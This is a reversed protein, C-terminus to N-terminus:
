LKARQAYFDLINHMSTQDIIFRRFDWIWFYGMMLRMPWVAACDCLRLVKTRDDWDEQAACEVVYFICVSLWSLTLYRMWIYRLIMFGAFLFMLVLAM